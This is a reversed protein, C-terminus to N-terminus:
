SKNWRETSESQASAVSSRCKGAYEFNSDQSYNNSASLGSSYRTVIQDTTVRTKKSPKSTAAKSSAQVVRAVPEDIPFFDADDDSDQLNDEDADSDEDMRDQDSNEDAM